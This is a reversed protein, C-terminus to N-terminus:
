SLLGEAKMAAQVAPRARMRDMFPTLFAPMDFKVMGCWNLVTFLYADPATMTQGMLYPTKTLTTELISMRTTLRAMTATRRSADMTPDFMSGLTKHLETSIFNFWEQARYREMTGHAPMLGTGKDGLFQCLVSAETLVAGDDMVLAPVYGKPNITFFDAGTQTKKTKADLLDLSLTLGAENAVIHPALSCSGPSYHLKM